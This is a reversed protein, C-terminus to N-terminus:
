PSLSVRRPLSTRRGTELEFYARRNNHEVAVVDPETGFKSEGIEVIATPQQQKLIPTLNLM